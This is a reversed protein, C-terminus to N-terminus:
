AQGQLQKVVVAYQEYWQQWEDKPFEMVHGDLLASLLDLCIHWGALDKSTHDNISSIYEKLVLLSGEPKPTLEFRVHDNGWTFELVSNPQCDTIEIDIYKGTGDKMDFKIVGGKRLQEVQLNPMWIALKDNETLAAWVSEISYQLTRDFQALYGDNTKQLSAIM